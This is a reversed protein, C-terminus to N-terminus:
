LNLDLIYFKVETESLISCWIMHYINKFKILLMMCILLTSLVSWYSNVDKETGKRECNGGKLTVALLQCGESTLIIHKRYLDLLTCQNGSNVREYVRKVEASASTTSSSATRDVVTETPLHLCINKLKWFFLTDSRSSFDHRWMRAAATFLHVCSHM